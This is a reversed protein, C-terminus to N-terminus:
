QMDMQKDDKVIIWHYVGLMSTNLGAWSAFNMETPKWVIFSLASVWTAGVLLIM